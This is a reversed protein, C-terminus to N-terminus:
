RKDVPYRNIRQIANDLRQVVTAQVTWGAERRVGTLEEYSRYRPYRAGGFNAKCPVTLELLIARNPHDSLVAADLRQSSILTRVYAFLLPLSFTPLRFNLSCFLPKARGNYIMTCKTATRQFVVVPFQWTKLMRSFM